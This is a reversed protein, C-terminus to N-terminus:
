PYLRLPTYPNTEQGFIMLRIDANIFEEENKVFILLPNTPKIDISKDKNLKAIESNLKEWKSSYLELLKANM